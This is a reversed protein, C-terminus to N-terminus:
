TLVAKWATEDFGTLAIGKGLVLPRKILKGDQALAALADAQSLTPLREKFNGERYSQGSTNFLSRLALPGQTLAAALQQSSPPQQVIDVREHAVGHQDLWKLAKKCTSCNPYHYVTIAM